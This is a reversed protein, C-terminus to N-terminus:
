GAARGEKSIRVQQGSRPSSLMFIVALWFLGLLIGAVVDTFYHYNLIIRSLCILVIVLVPALVSLFRGISSRSRRYLCVAIFGFFATSMTAHGSPFSYTSLPSLWLLVDPRTREVFAKAIGMSAASFALLLILQLVAFRNHRLFYAAGVALVIIGTISGLATVILFFEVHGFTQLPQVASEFSVDVQGFYTPYLRAVMLMLAFLLGFCLGWVHWWPDRPLARKIHRLMRVTYRM